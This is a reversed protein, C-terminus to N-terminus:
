GLIDSNGNWYQAIKALVEDRNGLYRLYVGRFVEMRSGEKLPSLKLGDGDEWIRYIRDWTIESVSLGCKSSVGKESITYTVPLIMEANGLIVGGAGILGFIVNHFIMSGAVFCVIGVLLVIARKQPAVKGLNVKWNM